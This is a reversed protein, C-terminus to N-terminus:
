ARVLKIAAALSGTINDPGLEDIFGAKKLVQRPHARVECLILRIKGHRCQTLLSELAAIGTSDVAPVDRMRLIFAHPKKAVGRLIRQFTDAVGFFFPGTIEYIEIDKGHEPIVSEPAAPMMSPDDGARRGYLIESGIGAQGPRIEAVEIMRRLFLVAALMVGVEVAFTMDGMVTLTFTVLLVIADSKPAKTLIRVFRPFNSMDWSTVMLVASLSVLPIASALPALLLMFLLLTLAHIIGAVPSAAGSKINTATRALAGTAPIGGFLASAINGLGQAALEMNANHRDGTMGDAVVASLLSEIAALLAITFSDRLLDRILPWSFAPLVPLPLTRPIGGFRSGITETNISLFYCVLTAAIVGAVAGPIRPVWKRILLIVVVTGVGVALTLPQITAASEFYNKWLTIFEPSSQRLTLGLFDKVQTSFILLSMGATFGTTVPYPIFRIFRGMGTLGMAILMLGAMVTAVALGAMGHRSIVGFAVILFSVTPGTIQYRSGGSLSAFFGAVIATYLGQAPSGGIAISMAMALPLAVVGVTLGAVCDKGLAALSYGRGEGRQFLEVTRPIFDKVSVLNFAM